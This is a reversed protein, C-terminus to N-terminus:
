ESEPSGAKRVVPTSGAELQLHKEALNPSQIILIMDYLENVETKKKWKINM